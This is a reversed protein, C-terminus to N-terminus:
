TSLRRVEAASSCAVARRALSRAEASTHRRLMAKIGPISAVSMSLESVGLGCLILAGQPDGALAGCVAVPRASESAGRVTMEILRLVAPHLADLESGLEPHMRDIAMVYQTLDNTGISFFDAEVALERAMLAAAPVEIMIGIEIPEAGVDRRVREAIRRVARLEELTALMPVMLRIPGIASARYIARLHPLFLDPRRLSLRVGRVGLAPNAERSSPLYPLSKDGGIDLTRVVM